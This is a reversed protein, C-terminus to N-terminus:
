THIIYSLGSVFLTGRIYLGALQNARYILQSTEKHSFCQVNSTLDLYYTLDVLVIQTVLANKICSNSVKFFNLM